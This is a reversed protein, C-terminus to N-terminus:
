RTKVRKASSWASYYKKGNATKYTRIRVYYLRRSALGTIKKSVASAKNVIVTKSSTFTKKQSYQVQYGTTQSAQKKWVATFTKAGATLKVLATGKPKIIFTKKLKGTYNGKGIITITATGVNKNNTYSVTYDTNKKLATSGIKVTIAQTLAKGTWTKAAIGTVKAKAVSPKTVKVTCTAKVGSGDTAAATIVATGASVAKVKGNESDVAAIKSNSSSWKLDTKIANSPSISKASLWITSGRELTASMTNLVIKNVLVYKKAAITQDKCHIFYWQQLDAANEIKKWQAYTGAYYIDRKEINTTPMTDIANADIKTLSAPLTIKRIDTDDFSYEELSTVGEPVIATKLQICYNFCYGPITSLGSPLTVSTLSTCDNFADNGLHDLQETLFTISKLGTCSIFASNGIMEVNEPIVIGTLFTCDGFTSDGITQLSVPLDIEKLNRCFQFAGDGLTELKSGEEFIVEKLDSCYLFANVGIRRVSAPVRITKLKSCDSFTHEKIESIGEPLEVRELSVCGGFVDGEYGGNMDSPYDGVVNVSSPITVEKLSECGKFAGGELTIVSDPITITKIKECGELMEYSFIELGGPLYIEELMTCDAFARSGIRWVSSPISLKKISKCEAFAEIHIYQLGEPLTIESLKECGHFTEVEIDELGSPLHISRLNKCERFAGADIYRLDDPLEVKELSDCFIFAEMGINDMGPEIFVERLADCNLFSRYGLNYVGSKVYLKVIQDRYDMWPYATYEQYDANEPVEMEGNGWITLTGETDIRWYLGEGCIGSALGPTGEGIEYDARLEGLYHGIGTVIATATGPDINNVYSVTYDKGEELEKDQYLVTVGARKETGDFDLYTDKLEIAGEDSLPYCTEVPITFETGLASVHVTGAGIKEYDPWITDLGTGYSVKFLDPNDSEWSYDTYVRCRENQFCDQMQVYFSIKPLEAYTSNIIRLSAPEAEMSINAKSPDIQVEYSIEGDLPTGGDYTGKKYSFVQVWFDYGEYIAHAIGISGMESRLMNRRHGQGEYMEDEELWGLFAEHSSTYGASINEAYGLDTDFGNDTLLDAVTSGDPRTHSYSLAIEAARQMAVEELYGNYSIEELSSIYIKETNSENWVWADEGMRLANVEDLMARASSQDYTIDISVKVPDSDTMSTAYSEQGFSVVGYKKSNGQEKVPTEVADEEVASDDRKDKQLTSEGTEEASTDAEGDPLENQNVFAEQENAADTQEDTADTQEDAADTQEDAANTQEDAANTEGDEEISASDHEMEDSTTRNLSDEETVSMIESIENENVGFDEEIAEAELDTATESETGHEEAASVPYVNSISLLTAIMIAIFSKTRKM